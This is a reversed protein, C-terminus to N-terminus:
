EFTSLLVSHPNQRGALHQIQYDDDIIIQSDNQNQNDIFSNPNQNNHFLELKIKIILLLNPWMVKIWFSWFM